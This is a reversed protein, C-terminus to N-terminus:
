PVGALADLLLAACREPAQLPFAHPAPVDVIRWGRRRAREAQEDMGGRECRIYLRPLRDVTGGLSVAAEFASVPMPVLREAWAPDGPVRPGATWMGDGRAAAEARRADAKQPRLGFGTDGDDPLLGDVLVVARARGGLAEAAPLAVLGGYSHGAVVVDEADGIATVLAAAHDMPTVGARLDFDPAAVEHGAARVHAPVEGWAWAGACSMHALAFCAV